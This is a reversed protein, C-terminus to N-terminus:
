LSCCNLLMKSETLHMCIILQRVHICIVSFRKYKILKCLKNLHLITAWRCLSKIWQYKRENKNPITIIQHFSLKSSDKKTNNNSYNNHISFYSYLILPDLSNTAMSYPFNLCLFSGAATKHSRTYPKESM